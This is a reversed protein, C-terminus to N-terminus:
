DGRRNERENLRAAETDAEAHNFTWYPGNPRLEVFRESRNAWVGWYGPLAWSARTEFRPTPETM